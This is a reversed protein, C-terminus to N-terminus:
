TYDIQFFKIIQNQENNKTMWKIEAENVLLLFQFCNQLHFCKSNFNETKCLNSKDLLSYNSFQEM